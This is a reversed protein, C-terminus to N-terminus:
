SLVHMSKGSLTPETHDRRICLDRGPEIRLGGFM